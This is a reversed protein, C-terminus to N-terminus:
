LDNSSRQVRVLLATPAIHRATYVAESVVSDQDGDWRITLRSEKLRQVQVQMCVARIVAKKLQPMVKLEQVVKNPKPDCSITGSNHM